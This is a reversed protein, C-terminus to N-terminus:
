SQVARPSWTQEEVSLGAARAHRVTYATGQTTSQTSYLAVVIAGLEGARQAVHEVMVRDRKLFQERWAARDASQPAAAKTWRGGRQGNVYIFGTGDYLVSRVGTTPHSEAAWEAAWSDPGKARGSVVITPCLADLRGRLWARAADNDALARSGTVLVISPRTV